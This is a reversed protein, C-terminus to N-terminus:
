ANNEKELINNGESEAGSTAFNWRKEQQKSYHIWKGQEFEKHAEPSL